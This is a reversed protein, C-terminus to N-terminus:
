FRLNTGVMITRGFMPRGEFTQYQTNFLNGVRVFVDRNGSFSQTAALDVIQHGSLTTPPGMMRQVGSAKGRHRVVGYLMTNDLRYTAGLNALSKPAGYRVSTNEPQVKVPNWTYNAFATMRDNVLLDTEIEIGQSRTTGTSNVYFFGEGPINMSVAERSMNLRFGSVRAHARGGLLNASWGVEVGTLREGCLSKHDAHSHVDAARTSTSVTAHHAHGGDERGLAADFESLSPWRTSQGWVAYLKSGPSLSYAANVYPSVHTSGESHGDLRVGATASIGDGIPLAGEAFLGYTTVNELNPLSTGLMEHAHTRTLDGGIALRANGVPLAGSWYGRAGQRYRHQHRFDPHMMLNLRDEEYNRFLTASFGDGRSNRNSSLNLGYYRFARKRQEKEGRFITDSYSKRDNMRQLYLSSELGEGLTRTLKLAPVTSEYSRDGYVIHAFPPTRAVGTLNDTSFREFNFLYGIESSGEATLEYRRTNRSGPAVSLDMQRQEPQRSIIEM